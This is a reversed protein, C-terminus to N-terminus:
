RDGNVGDAVGETQAVIGFAFIGIPNSGLPYTSYVENVIKRLLFLMHRSGSM